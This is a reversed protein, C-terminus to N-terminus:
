TLQQCVDVQRGSGVFGGVLDGDAGTVAEFRGILLTVGTDPSAAFNRGTSVTLVGGDDLPIDRFSGNLHLVVEAGSDLNTMVVVENAATLFTYDEREIVKSKSSSEVGLAFDCYVGAPFALEYSSAEPPAALAPAVPLAAAAAALVLIAPRRM